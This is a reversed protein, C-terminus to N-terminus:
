RPPAEVVLPAELIVTEPAQCEANRCRQFRVTFRVATPGPASDSRVRLPVEIVASGLCSSERPYTASGVIFRDGPVSVTLPILDGALPRHGNVSWPPAILLRVRATVASGLRVQTPELSVEVTVPGRADRAARASESVPPAPIIGLPGVAAAMTEMGRPARQLDGRFADVINRSIELYRKEGTAMALRALVAAMIGNGSPRGGDYASKLRAPLPAHAADTDFFGGASADLFRGIAADVARRAEDRWRVEGTADHLDLLAEALFAYDELFASSCRGAPGACRALSSWPGLGAIIASAAKTAVDKDGVRGLVASSIALAGITIGNEFAFARPADGGGTFAGSSDRPRELLRSAVAAAAERQSVSGTAASGEALGRLRLAQGALDAPAPSEVLTTLARVLAEKNRATPSRTFEALLLRVGGASPEGGAEGVGKLAREVATRDLSGQPPEPSQAAVLRAAAVGARTEAEGPRLKYGEAVKLLYAALSGPSLGELAGASVPHLAPTFVVWMATGPRPPDADSTVTLALRAVDALDPREDRDVRVAVFGAALAATVAEDGLLASGRDDTVALFILREGRRALDQAEGSWPQWDIGTVLLLALLPMAM